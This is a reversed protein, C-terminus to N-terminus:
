SALVGVPCACSSSHPLPPEELAHPWGTQLEREWASVHCLDEWRGALEAERIQWRRCECLTQVWPGAMLSNM